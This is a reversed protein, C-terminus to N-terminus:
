DQKNKNKNKNKKSKRKKKKSKKNGFSSSTSPTEENELIALVAKKLNVYNAQKPFLYQIFSQHGIKNGTETNILDKGLIWYMDNYMMDLAASHETQITFSPTNKDKDLFYFVHKYFLSGEERFREFVIVKKDRWEFVDFCFEQDQEPPLKNQKYAEYMLTKLSDGATYEELAYHTQILRAMGEYNEPMIALYALFYEKALVYDQSRYGISGLNYLALQHEKTTTPTIKLLNQYATIAEPIQELSHHTLALQLYTHYACGEQQVALKYVEIAGTLDGIPEVLLDGKLSLFDVDTTDIALGKEIYSMATPIDEISLYGITLYFIAGLSTPNNILVKQLTEIGKQTQPPKNFIYAMGLYFQSETDLDERSEAEAIVDSFQGLDAWTALQLHLSDQAYICTSLLSFLLLTNIKM